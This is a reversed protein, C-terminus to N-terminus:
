EGETSSTGRRVAAPVWRAGTWLSHHRRRYATAASPLGELVFSVPVRIPVTM